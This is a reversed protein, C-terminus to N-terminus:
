AAFRTIWYDPWQENVHCTGGQHPIAAFFLVYDSYQTLLSVFDHAYRTDIHEAVELSICLSFRHGELGPICRGQACHELDASIFINAPIKLLTQEVYNGDVGRVCCGAKIFEVLWSGTGCGVDLVTSPHLLKIILPVVRSASISSTEAQAAYFARSYPKKDM